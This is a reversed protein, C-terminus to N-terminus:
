GLYNVRISHYNVDNTFNQTMLSVHNEWLVVMVYTICQVALRLVMLHIFMRLKFTCNEFLLSYVIKDFTFFEKNKEFTVYQNTITGINEKIPVEQKLENSNTIKFPLTFEPIIIPM